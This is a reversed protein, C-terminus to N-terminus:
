VEAMRKDTEKKNQNFSCSYFFIGSMKTVVASPIAFIGLVQLFPGKM